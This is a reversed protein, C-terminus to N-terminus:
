KPSPDGSTLGGLAEITEQVPRDSLKFTGSYPDSLQVIMFIASAITIAGLGLATVVTGNAPSVLGYGCFMLLSWCIVIMLMPWPVGATLQLSMLLRTRNIDSVASNASALAQKQRDTGPELAQMMQELAKAGEFANKVVRQETQSPAAGGWIVWYIHRLGDRLAKRAPLTEPGFAELASDLQLVRAGLLEVETKQTSYLTYASGAFTGLVLAILLSLLGTMAGIMGVSKDPSYHEPLRARLTLGLVGAGFAVIAVVIAIAFSSM